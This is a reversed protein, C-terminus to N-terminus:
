EFVRYSQCTIDNSRPKDVNDVYSGRGPNATYQQLKLAANSKHTMPRTIQSIWMTMDYAICVPPGRIFTVKAFPGHMFSTQQINPINLRKGQRHKDSKGVLLQKKSTMQHGIGGSGRQISSLLICASKSLRNLLENQSALQTTSDQGYALSPCSPVDYLYFFHGRFQASMTM